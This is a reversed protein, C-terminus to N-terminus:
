GMAEAQIGGLKLAKTVVEMPSKGIVRIMPEKGIDGTDFIIDPIKDTKSLVERTGWELTSGEREKVSKPEDRRDFSRVVFGLREAGELLSPDYKINMASRFEPYVRMVTLVISAIHRSAGFAPCGIAHPRGNLNVIRGPIAAVEDHATAHPLGYGINTQVEPILHGALSATFHEVATQLAQLIRYREMEREAVAFHDTPGHGHGVDLSFRIATDMYAKADAIAAIIDKGLALNAAIAASTTCGTGHTNKTEYRPTSFRHFRSGDFLLDTSMTGEEHGGKLLVSRAGMQHIAKCATEKDGEFRISNGWLVEAEPINPTVVMALPLLENKLTYIADDRLLKDGSKAVMVPDCVLAVDPHTKLTKAVLHIVEISHLMGTKASTVNFDDFISTLQQQIFDLPVPFIGQVGITNQATLATLVSVGFCGHVTVTKLDAQIGAGGGSDSGAITLVIPRTHNTM